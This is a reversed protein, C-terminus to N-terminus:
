PKAEQDPRNLKEAIERLQDVLVRLVHEREAGCPITLPILPNGGGSFFLRSPVANEFEALKGRLAWGDKWNKGFVELWLPTPHFNIWWKLGLWLCIGIDEFMQYRGYSGLRATQRLSGKPTKTSAFGAEVVSRTADDILRCLQRIRRPMEPAFEESRIPLFADADMRDCLGLLQRVDSAVLSEGAADLEATILGLLAKWSTLVLRRHNGLQVSKTEPLPTEVAGQLHAQCRATLESWLSEARLAPSVFMLVGTTEAPLRAIYGCPQNETLGAWFKAEIILAEQGSQDIGVLDPISNDEGVVQNRYMMRESVAIGCHHLFRVVAHRATASRHLIFGLSKTALNEPHESLSIGLYGLLTEDRM